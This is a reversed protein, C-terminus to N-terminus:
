INIDIIIHKRTKKSKSKLAKKHLGLIYDMNDDMILSVRGEPNMQQAEVVFETFDSILLKLARDKVLHPVLAENDRTEGIVTEFLNMGISRTHDTCLFCLSWGYRSERNTYTMLDKKFLPDKGDAPKVELSLEGTQLDTYETYINNGKEDCRVIPAQRIYEQNRNLYDKAPTSFKSKNMNIRNGNTVIMARMVETIMRASTAPSAIDGLTNDYEQETSFVWNWFELRRTEAYRIKTASGFLAEASHKLAVLDCRSWLAKDGPLYGQGQHKEITTWETRYTTKGYPTKKTRTYRARIEQPQNYYDILQVLCDTKTKACFDLQEELILFFNNYKKQKSNKPWVTLQFGLDDQEWSYEAHITKCLRELEQKVKVAKNSAAKKAKPASKFPVLATSLALM